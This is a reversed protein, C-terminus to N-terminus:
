LFDNYHIEYNLKFINIKLLIYLILLYLNKNNIIMSIIANFM